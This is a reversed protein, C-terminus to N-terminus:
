GSPTTTTWWHGTKMKANAGCNPCPTPQSQQLYRRVATEKERALNQEALAGRVREMTVALRAEDFPKVVYDLAALEFAKVAHENYATAFIILAPWAM